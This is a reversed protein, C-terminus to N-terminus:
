TRHVHTYARTGNPQARAIVRQRWLFPVIFLIFFVSFVLVIVVCLNFVSRTASFTVVPQNSVEDCSIYYTDSGVTSALWPADVTRCM